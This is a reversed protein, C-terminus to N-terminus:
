RRKAHEANHAAVMAARLEPQKRCVTQHAVHKSSNSRKMEEAVADNFAAVADTGTDQSKGGAAALQSSVDTSVGPKAPQQTGSGAQAANGKAKLSENEKTLALKEAALQNLYATTAQAATAGLELQGVLFDNGAGPCAAKLESLTAPRAAASAPTASAQSGQTASNGGTAVNAEQNSKSPLVVNPDAVSSLDLNM